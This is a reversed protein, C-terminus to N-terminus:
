RGEVAPEMPRDGLRRGVVGQRARQGGEMIREHAITEAGDQRGAALLDGQGLMARDELRDLRAVGGGGLPRCTMVHRLYAGSEGLDLTRHRESTAGIVPARDIFFGSTRRVTM